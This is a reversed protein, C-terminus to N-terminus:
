NKLVMRYRAENAVVKAISQNVQSMPVVETRAEINHRAAFDLMERIMQRSGIPSGSVSKSGVILTMSHLQIPGPVAGVFCLNGMPRLCNVYAQWDLDVHATAIIFDQTGAATELQDRDTSIVFHDAGFVRAEAEKQVTSSFATVECGFAHAFQLALHGLGGIGVVGVRMDPRVGFRRLPSYVTIGGCLLPAANESALSEPVPFAYRSDVIIAEAFGGFNGACTAQSEPCVHDFGSACWECELCAACQWGVGVRNGEVLGRVEPGAALVTGVIEHGPVLPYQSIGWDDNILHIDSRCIGCHTIAIEIDYPGLSGPNYEFPVLQERKGKAAYARIAM